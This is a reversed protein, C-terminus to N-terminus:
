QLGLYNIKSGAPLLTNQQFSSDVRVTESAFALDIGRSALTPLAKKLYAITEPHPHGIGVAIGREGALHMLKEFQKEISKSDRVNDLFVDRSLTPIYYDKATIEAVTRPSTRSDIFYLNQQRLEKVLWTMPERLQTLLSGMHNNLGKAHPVSSLSERLTALFENKNMKPTLAGPGLPNSGLNSMPAHLLVEKGMSHAKRALLKTNSGHPLFAYNIAGPLKLAENGLHLNNGMDDLILVITPNFKSPTTTQAISHSNFLLSIFLVLSVTLFNKLQIFSAM